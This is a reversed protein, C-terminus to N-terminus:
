YNTEVLTEIQYFIYDSDKLTNEGLKNQLVPIFDGGTMLKPSINPLIVSLKEYNRHIAIVWSKTPDISSIESFSLMKREQIKDVRFHINESEDLTLPPFRKDGTLAQMSNSIIEQALSSHIEKINGASWRISGNLYLTVFCCWKETLLPNTWIELDQLEPARMKKFYEILIQSLLEKM